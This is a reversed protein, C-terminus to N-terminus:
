RTADGPGPTELHRAVQSEEEEGAGALEELSVRLRPEVCQTAAVRLRARDGADLTTALAQAAATRTSADATSGEVLQWLQDRSISPLRYTDAGNTSAAVDSTGVTQVIMEAGRSSADRSRAIGANVRAIVEDRQAEDEGHMQLHLTARRGRVLELDAGKARAEDLDRYAFFRAHSADRVWVGDVGVAIRSARRFAFPVLVATAVYAYIVKDWGTLSVVAIMAVLAAVFAGVVALTRPTVPVAWFVIEDARKPGAGQEGARALLTDVSMRAVFYAVAAVGIAALGEASAWSTWLALAGVVSPAANLLRRPWGQSRLRELPDARGRRVLASALSRAALVALMALGGGAFTLFLSGSCVFSVLLRWPLSQVWWPPDLLVGNPLHRANEITGQFRALWDSAILWAVVGGFLGLVTGLGRRRV